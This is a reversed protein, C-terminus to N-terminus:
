SWRLIFLTLQQDTFDAPFELLDGEVPVKFGFQLLWDRYHPTGLGILRRSASKRPSVPECDHTERYYAAINGLYPIKPLTKM